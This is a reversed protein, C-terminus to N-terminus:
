HKNVACLMFSPFPKGLFMNGSSKVGEYCAFDFNHSDLFSILQSFKQSFDKVDSHIEILLRKCLKIKDEVSCLVNFEAGEIDCKLLDVPKTLFTNLDISKTEVSLLERVNLRDREVSTAGLGGWVRVDKPIEICIDHQSTSLAGKQLVVRGNKIERSLNHKIMTLNRPNPEIAQVEATPFKHTIIRSFLGNAAGADIVYALDSLANLGYVDDIILEDLLARADNLNAFQMNRSYIQFSEGKAFSELLMKKWNRHPFGQSEYSKVISSAKQYQHEGLASRLKELWVYSDTLELALINDFKM